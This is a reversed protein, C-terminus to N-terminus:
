RRWPSHCASVLALARLKQVSHSQLKFNNLKGFKFLPQGRKFGALHRCRSYRQRSDRKRSHRSPVDRRTVQPRPTELPAGASGGGFIDRTSVITSALGHILM